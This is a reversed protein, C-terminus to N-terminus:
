GVVVVCTEGDISVIDKIETDIGVTNIWKLAANYVQQYESLQYDSNDINVTIKKNYSFTKSSVRYRAPKTNTPPLFKVLISAKVYSM